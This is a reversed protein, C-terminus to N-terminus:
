DRIVSVPSCCYDGKQADPPGLLILTHSHLALTDDNSAPARDLTCAELRSFCGWDWYRPHPVTTTNNNNSSHQLPLTVVTHACLSGPGPCYPTCSLIGSLFSMARAACCLPPCLLASSVLAHCCLATGAQWSVNSAPGPCPSAHKSSCGASLVIHVPLTHFVQSEIMEQSVRHPFDFSQRPELVFKHCPKFETSISPHCAAFSVSELEEGL